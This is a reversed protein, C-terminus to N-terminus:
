LYISNERELEGACINLGGQFYM